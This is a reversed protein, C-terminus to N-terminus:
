LSQSMVEIWSDLTRSLLYGYGGELTPDEYSGIDSVKWQGEDLPDQNLFVVVSHEFQRRKGGSLIVLNANVQDHNVVQCKLSKIGDTGMQTGSFIDVDVLAYGKIRMPLRGMSVDLLKVFIDQDFYRRYRSISKEWFGSRVDDHYLTRVLRDVGDPCGHGGQNASAPVVLATMALVSCCLKLATVKLPMPWYDM